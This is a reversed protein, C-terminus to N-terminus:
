VMTNKHDDPFITSLWLEFFLMYFDVFNWINKKPPFKFNSFIIILFNFKLFTTLTFTLSFLMIIWWLCVIIYLNKVIFNEYYFVDCFFSKIRATASQPPNVNNNVTFIFRFKILWSLKKLNKIIRVNCNVRVNIVWNEQSKVFRAEYSSLQQTTGSEMRSLISCHQAKGKNRGPKRFARGLCLCLKKPFMKKPILFFPFLVLFHNQKM